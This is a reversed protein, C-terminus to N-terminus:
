LVWQGNSIRLDQRVMLYNPVILKNAAQESYSFLLIYTLMSLVEEYRKMVLSQIFTKCIVCKGWTSSSYCVHSFHHKWFLKWEITFSQCLEISSLGFGIRLEILQNKLFSLCLIDNSKDTFWVSVSKLINRNGRLDCNTVMSNDKKLFLIQM